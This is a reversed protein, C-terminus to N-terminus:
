VLVVADDERKHIAGHPCVDACAPRFCHNCLRPLYFYYANPYEGVGLDEAWNPGWTPKEKPVLYAQQGGGGYFVEEYSFEM